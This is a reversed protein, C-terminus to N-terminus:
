ALALRAYLEPRQGADKFIAQSFPREPFSRGIKEQQCETVLLRRAYGDQRHTACRSSALGQRYQTSWRCGSARLENSNEAYDEFKTAFRNTDETQFEDPSNRIRM